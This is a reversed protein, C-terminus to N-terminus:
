DVVDIKREMEMSEIKMKWCREGRRQGGRKGVLVWRLGSIKL